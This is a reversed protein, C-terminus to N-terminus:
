RCIKFIEKKETMSNSEVLKKLVTDVHKEQNVPFSLLTDDKLYVITFKKQDSLINDMKKTYGQSQAIVVSNGKDSKQIGLDKNKSLNQLAIFEDNSLNPPVNLNFTRCSSRAEEKAKEKVFDM